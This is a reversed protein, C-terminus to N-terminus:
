GDALEHYGAALGELFVAWATAGADPMGRARDKIWGARGVVPEMDKTAEAGERAGQAADDLTEVLSAGRDAAAAAAEASSAMADVVTRQGITVGGREAVGATAVALMEAVQAPTPDVVGDLSKGGRMFATALLAGITGPTKRALEMGAQSLAAGVDAAGVIGESERIATFGTALTAGLDGDGAAADLACLEDRADCVHDAASFLAAVFTLSPARAASM